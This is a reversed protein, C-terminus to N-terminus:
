RVVRAQEPPFYVGVVDWLVNEIPVYADSWVHSDCSNGRSDGLVFVKGAPVDFTASAQGGDGGQLPNATAVPVDFPKGEVRVVREGAVIKIHEGPLGIVRKIYKGDDNASGNCTLRAADTPTLIIVDGRKPEGNNLQRGLVREGDAITPTMASTFNEYTKFAIQDGGARAREARDALAGQNHARLEAILAEFGKTAESTKSATVGCGM